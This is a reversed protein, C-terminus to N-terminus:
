SRQAIALKESADEKLKGLKEQVDNLSTKLIDSGEDALMNASNSSSNNSSDDSSRHGNSRNSQNQKNNELAMKKEGKQHKIRAEPHELLKTQKSTPRLSRTPTSNSDSRKEFIKGGELPTGIPYAM